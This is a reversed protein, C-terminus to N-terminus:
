VEAHYSPLWDMLRRRHKDITWTKKDDFLVAHTAQFQELAAVTARPHSEPINQNYYLVFAELSTEVFNKEQEAKYNFKM